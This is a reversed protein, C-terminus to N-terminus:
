KWHIIIRISVPRVQESDISAKKLKNEAEEKYKELYKVTWQLPHVATRSLLLFSNEVLVDAKISFRTCVKIREANAKCALCQRVQARQSRLKKRYSSLSKELETVKLQLERNACSVEALKSSEEECSKKIEASEHCTAKRSAEQEIQFQKKLSKLHAACMKGETKDKEMLQEMLQQNETEKSKLECQPQILKSQLTNSVQLFEELCLVFKKKDTRAKELAKCLPEVQSHHQKGMAVLKAQSHKLERELMQIKRETQNDRRLHSIETDKHALETQVVDLAAKMKNHSALAHELMAIAKNSDDKATDLQHQLSTVDGNRLFFLAFLLLFFYETDQKERLIKVKSQQKLYFYEMLHFMLVSVLFYT